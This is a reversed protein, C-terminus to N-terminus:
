MLQFTAKEMEGSCLISQSFGDMCVSFKQTWKLSTIVFYIMLYFIIVYMHVGIEFKAFTNLANVM